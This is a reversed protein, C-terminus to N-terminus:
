NLKIKFYLIHPNSEQHTIEFTIEGKAGIDDLVERINKIAMKGLAHVNFEKIGYKRAKMKDLIVKEIHEKKMHRNIFVSFPLQTVITEYAVKFKNIGDDHKEFYEYMPRIYNEFYRASCLNCINRGRDGWKMIIENKLSEVGDSHMDFLDRVYLSARLANYDNQDIKNLFYSLLERSDEKKEKKCFDELLKESKEELIPVGSEIFYNLLHKSQEKSIQSPNIHFTQTKKDYKNNCNSNYTVNINFNQNVNVSFLDKFIM